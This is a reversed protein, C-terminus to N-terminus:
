ENLNAQLTEEIVSTTRQNRGWGKATVRFIYVGPTNESNPGLYEIVYRYKPNDNPSKISPDENSDSFVNERKWVEKLNSCNDEVKALRSDADAPKVGKAACLGNTCKCTFQATSNSSALASIKDQAAKLGVQANQLALQYDSDNTATRTNMSTSQMTAVVLFAIVVMIILVMYLSFGSQRTFYKKNYANKM